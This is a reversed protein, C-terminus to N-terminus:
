GQLAKLRGRSYGPFLHGPLNMMSTTTLRSSSLAHRVDYLHIPVNEWKGNRLEACRFMPARGSQDLLVVHQSDPSWSVTMSERCVTGDHKWSFVVNSRADLISLGNATWQHDFSIAVPYPATMMPPKAYLETATTDARGVPLQDAFGTSILALAALALIAKM